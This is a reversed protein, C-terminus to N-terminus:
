KSIKGTYLEDTGSKKQEILYEDIFDRPDNTDLTAKHEKTVREVILM